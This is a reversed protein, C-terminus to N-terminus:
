RLTSFDNLVLQRLALKRQAPDGETAWKLYADRSGPDRHRQLFEALAEQAGSGSQQQLFARAGDLDGVAERQLTQSTVDAPSAASLPLPAWFVTISLATLPIFMRQVLKLRQNVANVVIIRM